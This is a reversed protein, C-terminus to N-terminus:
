SVLHLLQSAPYLCFYLVYDRMGECLVGKVCVTCGECVCLVDKVCM